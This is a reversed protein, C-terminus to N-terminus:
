AAIQTVGFSSDPETASPLMFVEVEGTRSIALAGVVTACEPKVRSHVDVRGDAYIPRFDGENAEIAMPRGMADRMLRDSFQPKTFLKEKYM